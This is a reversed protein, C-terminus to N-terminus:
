AERAEQKLANVVDEFPINAKIVNSAALYGKGEPADDWAEEALDVVDRAEREPLGSVELLYILMEPCKLGKLEHWFQSAPVALEMDINKYHRPDIYNRTWHWLQTPEVGQEKAVDVYRGTTGYKKVWEDSLKTHEPKNKLLQVFEKKTLEEAM